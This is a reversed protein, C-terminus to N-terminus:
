VPPTRRLGTRRLPARLSEGLYVTALRLEAALRYQRFVLVFVAVCWVIYALGEFALLLFRLAMDPVWLFRSGIVQSLENLGVVAGACLATALLVRCYSRFPGEGDPGIRRFALLGYALPVIAYVVLSGFPAGILGFRSIFFVDLAVNAVLGIVRIGILAKFEGLVNLALSSFIQSQFMMTGTALVVILPLSAEYAPLFTGVLFKYPFSIGGLCIANVMTYAAWPAGMYKGLAAGQRSTVRGNGVDLAMNRFLVSHLSSPLMRALNIAGLAFGYLGAPALGLMAPIILMEISWSFKDGLNLLFLSLSAGALRRTESWSVAFRVRMRGFVVVIGVGILSTITAGLLAGPLRFFIVLPITFLLGGLSVAIRRQSLLTFAGEAALHQAAFVELRAVILLTSTLVVTLTSGLVGGYSWGALFAAWLAAVVVLTSLLSACFVIHRVREAGAHDGQGRLLPVERAFAKTLGLDSSIAYGALTHIVKFVGLLSPGLLWAQLIGTPLSLAYEVVVSSALWSWHRLAARRGASRM